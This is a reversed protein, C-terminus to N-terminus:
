KHILKNAKRKRCFEVFTGWGMLSQNNLLKRKKNLIINDLENQEIKENMQLFIVPYDKMYANLYKGLKVNLCGILNHKDNPYFVDVCFGERNDYIFFDARTRKDDTFFYERHVFEKGFKEVLFEYVKKELINSRKNIKNALESRHKGSRFDSQGGLGLKERVKLLGGFSRQISRSSPLYPFKDVESATPYRGFEEYFKKLGDHVDEINWNRDGTTNKRQERLSM